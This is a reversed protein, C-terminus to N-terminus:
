GSYCALIVFVGRNVKKTSPTLDLSDFDSSSMIGSVSAVQREIGDADSREEREFGVTVNDKDDNVHAVKQSRSPVHSNLNKQLFRHNVSHCSGFCRSPAYPRFVKAKKPKKVPQEDGFDANREEEFGEDEALEEELDQSELEINEEDDDGGEEM